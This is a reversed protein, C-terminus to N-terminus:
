SCVIINLGYSAKYIVIDKYISTLIVVGDSSKHGHSVLMTSSLFVVRITFHCCNPLSQYIKYFYLSNLRYTSNKILEKQINIFVHLIVINNM